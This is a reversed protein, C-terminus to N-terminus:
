IQTFVFHRKKFAGCAWIKDLIHGIIRDLDEIPKSILRKLNQVFATMYVQIQVNHRRRYKARRLGHNNKAEAFLGEMKWMREDLKSKFYETQMQERIADKEEEYFSRVISKAKGIPLCQAKLSCNLCSNDKIKYAIVQKDRNIGQRYLPKSQPCLYCDANKDYIFDKKTLGQLRNRGERVPIFSRIKKQEFYNYNEGSSYGRDAIVEGIKFHFTKLQYEIRSTLIRTEAAAGDTVHCDTIIRSDGDALYHAKYSLKFGNGVPALTSDPDTTSQHTRNSYRCTKNREACEEEDAGEKGEMVERSANAEILTSDALIKEGRVFGSRKCQEVMQEFVQQFIKEGLRDRIKTLSSHDPVQDELSLRLFWRYALNVQIDECLQRDSTIGYLYSIVLMRLFVEPDISPRGQGSSYYPQTLERVYSLDLVKDIKRLRHTKPIYRELDGKTFLVPQYYQKGQM